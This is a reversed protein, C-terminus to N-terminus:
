LVYELAPNVATDEETRKLMYPSTISSREISVPVMVLPSLMSPDTKKQRWELFGFCLYLINIGQEEGALKAKARMERVTIEMDRVDSDSLIDGATLEIPESLLDMMAFLGSLRVNDSIDVPHRFSLSEENVAIRSYLEPMSPTVIRLTSRSTKVFNLMRNRRGIDFLGHKWSDFKKEEARSFGNTNEKEVTNRNENM